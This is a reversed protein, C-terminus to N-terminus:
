RLILSSFIRPIIVPSQSPKVLSLHWPTLRLSEPATRRLYLVSPHLFSFLDTVEVRSLKVLRNAHWENRNNQKTKTPFDVVFNSIVPSESLKCFRTLPEQRADSCSGKMRELHM